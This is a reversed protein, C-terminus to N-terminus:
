EFIEILKIWRKLQLLTLSLEGPSKFECIGEFGGVKETKKKKEKKKKKVTNM